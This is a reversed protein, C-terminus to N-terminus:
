SMEEYIDVSESDIIEIVLAQFGSGEGAPFSYADTYNSDTTVEVKYRYITNKEAPFEDSFERENGSDIEVTRDIITGGSARKVQIQIRRRISDRNYVFLDPHNPTPTEQSRSCGSFILTAGCTYVCLAVFKRRNLGM